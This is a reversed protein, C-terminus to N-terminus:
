LRELDVKKHLSIIAYAFSLPTYDIDNGRINLLWAISDLATLIFYSIKNMKLIKQIQKIKEETSKGSYQIDHIFAKSQPPLPQDEWLIDIPNKELFNIKSKYDKAIKKIKEIDNKSHLFPDLGIIFNGSTNKKLWDWFNKFHQIQFIKNDVEEAAQFTYRGDIFIAASNKLIIAKGASGSFNTVWKLREAYSAIYEGLFEDTRNIIFIDINNRKM